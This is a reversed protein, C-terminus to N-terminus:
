LEEARVLRLTHVCGIHTRELAAIAEGAPMAGMDVYRQCYPERARRPVWEVLAGSIGLKDVVDAFVARRTSVQEQAAIQSLKWRDRATEWRRVLAAIQRANRAPRDPRAPDLNLVVALLERNYTAVIHRASWRAAREIARIQGRRLQGDGTLRRQEDSAIALNQRGIAAALRAEDDEGQAFQDYVRQAVSGLPM